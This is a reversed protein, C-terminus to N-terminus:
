LVRNHVADDVKDSKPVQPKREKGGEDVTALQEFPTREGTSEFLFTDPNFQLVYSSDKMERSLYNGKVICLHKYDSNANDNRLEIVLRMKAEYGQGSLINNRSPALKETRKGTHHLFGISCKHKNAVSRYRN